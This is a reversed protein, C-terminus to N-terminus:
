KKQICVFRLEKSSGEVLPKAINGATVCSDHSSFGEIANLTVSDGKAWTGAFIYLVLIWTM